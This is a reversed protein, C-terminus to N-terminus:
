CSSQNQFFDYLRICNYSINIIQYMNEVLADAIMKTGYFCLLKDLNYTQYKTLQLETDTNPAM